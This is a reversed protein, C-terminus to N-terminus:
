PRRPLVGRQELHRILSAYVKGTLDAADIFRRRTLQGEAKRILTKMKPHRQSDDAGKVFVLRNKKKRTAHDFERATPSLGEDDEWGYENAFVGLYVAARDVEALYLQGPTQNNAPLDEFLFVDFYQGLLADGRIFDRIVQRENALEKQVSSIFVLEKM